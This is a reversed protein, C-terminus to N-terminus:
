PYASIPFVLNWYGLHALAQESLDEVTLGFVVNMVLLPHVPTAAHGLSRAYVENFYLPSQQMTATAFLQSEGATLTRGWHHRFEQGVTFEEYYRGREIVRRAM